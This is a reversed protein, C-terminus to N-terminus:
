IRRGRSEPDVLTRVGAAEQGGPSSHAIAAMDDPGQQHYYCLRILDLGCLACVLSRSVNIPTNKSLVSQMLSSSGNKCVCDYLLGCVYCVEDSSM